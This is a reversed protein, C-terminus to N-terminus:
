PLALYCMLFCLYWKALLSRCPKELLWTCIHSNSGLSPQSGFFQYNQVTTSSFVRSFGKSQLSILGTSGLPFWGQIKMPLVSASASAEISQGGLAFLPSLEKGGSAPLSQLYSSFRAVSSSITSPIVSEILACSNPCARPSPSPCSLGAHQLRHLWLSNSM